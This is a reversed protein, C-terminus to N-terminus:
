RLQIPVCHAPSQTAQLTKWKPSPKSGHSGPKTLMVPMLTGTIADTTRKPTRRDNPKNGLADLKKVVTTIREFFPNPQGTFRFSREYEDLLAAEDAYGEPKWIKDLEQFIQSCFDAQSFDVAEFLSPNIEDFIRELTSYMMM